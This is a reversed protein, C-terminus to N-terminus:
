LPKFGEPLESAGGTLDIGKKEKMYDSFSSYKGKSQMMSDVDDHTFPIAKHLNSQAQRLLKKQDENINSQTLSSEVSKDFIQRIEAFKDLGVILKSGAQIQIANDLKDSLGVLGTAAGGTELSALNRSVGALRTQMMQSTEDSMKQNLASAPAKFLSGSFEKQGFVPSTTSVPLAALVRAAESAENASNVVRNGAMAALSGGLGGGGKGGGLKQWGQTSKNFSEVEGTDKNVRHLDGTKPDQLIEWGKSSDRTRTLAEMEKDHAIREKLNDQQQQIRDHAMQLQMSFKEQGDAAKNAMEEKKAIEKEIRDINHSAFTMAMKVDGYGNAIIELRRLRSSLDMNKANLIDKYQQVESEHTRLAKDFNTKYTQYDRQFKIANGQSYGEIAGAMANGAINMRNTANRGALLAFAGIIGALAQMDNHNIPEPKFDPMSFKDPVHQEAFQSVEDAKKSYDEAAAGYRKTIEGSRALADEIQKEYPATRERGQQELAATDSQRRQEIDQLQNAFPDNIKPLALTNLTAM